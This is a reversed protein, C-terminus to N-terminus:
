ILGVVLRLIVLADEIDVVGDGTSVGNVMPAMDLRLVQDPQQNKLGVAMQLALLADVISLGETTGDVAVPLTRIINRQVTLTNSNQDTGTVSVQYVKTDTLSLLQRFVGEVVAPTYTQGDMNITVTVPTTNDAVTGALPYSDRVTRIDGSPDTVALSFAPVYSATRKAQATKGTQSVATILITNMGENLPATFTYTTDTLSAAQPSSGNVTYSVTMGASDAAAMKANGAFLDVITGTVTVFQRIVVTNDPPSTVTLRPAMTDLIITRTDTIVNGSTSTAIVTITNAGAVLQVPYSFSGSQSVQVTAGNITVSSLFTPNSVLGCVNVTTETTVAGDSLTSLLLSLPVTVTMSQTAQTAANYNGNGSQNAAITCTGPFIGTVATGSITCVLPTTSTFSVAFGSSATASVTGTTGVFVTPATGFTITQSAKGITISQTAQTAANFNGNGAQDAAITCTGAALGSVTAGSVTCVTPTTSSLSLTLGSSATASVIGTGGYAIAPATGFTVSQAAKGITLTGSTSGQYNADNITAIIAYSGANSPATASGDYTVNVTLGAPTTTVSALKGTGDYTQSLGSLNVTATAKGVVITRPVDAAANFNSNGAQSATVVISGAGTITLANGTLSGPGSTVAFTVPSGSAGGIATLTIPSNGYTASAPPNFTITQNAKTNTLTYGATLSGVTATVSYSGANGNASASFSAIGSANTAANGGATIGAGSGPGAFTVNVGDLPFGLIDTVRLQLSGAFATDITTSQGAGATVQISDPVGREYAGMDCLTNQPRAIGRKDATPSGTCTGTDIAPSGSLLAMTATPGGNDALVGLLPDQGTVDGTTTTFTAGTTDTVLNYGQSTVTGAMDPGSPATNNALITNKLSIAGATIRIGGGSITAINGAITANTLTTAGGSLYIGGGNTASNNAVTTNSIVTAASNGYIAGGSVASNGSLLSDAITMTGTAYIAGGASTASNGNFTCGSIAITAGGTDALAAGSAAAGNAITLNQLTFSVPSTVQFIQTAGGGSVTLHAAGAGNITLDKDIVLPTVLTITQSSLGAAFTIADGPNAAAITGRLSGPDSDSSNTVVRTTATTPNITNSNDSTGSTNYARVRYWYPTNASLGTVAVSTVNSVDKNNYGTAFSTFGIDTSVDLYYGTAGTVSGWNATFSSFTVQSAATAVPVGLWKAYLTTNGSITFTAGPAYSTGSGNALTNWGNFTYGTKTLSGSNGLVTVTAGAVYPNSADTPAVGGTAGNGNYTVTASWKAYLTTNGSIGFTDGAAYNMGTGNALTNWGSFTYGTRVLTGTNGLVTVTAGSLYATADTPATGSTSSNGDYTVTATWRAYLTINGAMAFTGSGAAYTTGTGDALTNWGSFTYGTKALSGSNAAATVTAGPLYVTADTPVTGGTSGNANYTVTGIWKAYLTLNGAIAFNAGPSYDTGSGNAASNWGDFTYGTRTLTGTNGLVTATAGSVYPSSGDNPAAGGTNGNGNYTVTATWKAYLTTNTTISFTDAAAYSTGTGNALTNWGAFTYGTRVLTGTNGLVTVTAVGLYATADTPAAGGTNGNGSYTVSATWKAYLTVNGTMAFTGSGAAYTTGTGDALTNWGSFTYGTKALSGSNAAATVTAGPLYGTADTPVTGGTSGNANYTVTGTWKAYLTTNGAINFTNGSSYSTGSGDAATNWGAFTYGTRTLSGINGLVTVSSGTVYPSSGDVPVAGGTSGNGNYTVTYVPNVTVTITRTATAIGDSVQVTFTETGAYVGSPTYTITGGPTIDANGSSATTGSFSLSGGHNPPVSQSWTETQSSDTDSVHLLGKIDTASANQNVTLTTTSGVFSPATNAVYTFGGSLTGSQTDPNTVVVNKAGATGSPTTASISTASNWTVGTASAGGITVTAGNVFGTGTITVSTNGATPGSTPAIGTVTPAPPAAVDAITINDFNLNSPAAGGQFTWNIVISDVYADNFQTGGNILTSLQTPTTSNFSLVGSAHTAITSGDARKTTVTISELNTSGDYDHIALDKFTFTKCTSGGEAKVTFSGTTFATQQNGAWISTLVLDDILMGNSLVFKDSFTAFGAGATNDAGIGGNTPTDGNSFDYTGNATGNIAADAHGCCFAAFMIVMLTVLSRKLMHIEKQLVNAFSEIEDIRAAPDHM